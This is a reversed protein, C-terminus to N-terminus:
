SMNSVKGRVFELEEQAKILAEQANALEMVIAGTLKDFLKKTITGVKDSEVNLLKELPVDGSVHSILTDTLDEEQPDSLCTM